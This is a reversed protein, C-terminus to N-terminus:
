IDGENQRHFWNLVRRFMNRPQEMIECLVVTINDRGGKKLARDVLIEVTKVVPIDRSLIDAIEGDSLMDTWITEDWFYVGGDSNDKIKIGEIPKGSETKASLDYDYFINYFAPYYNVKSYPDETKEFIIKGDSYVLDGGWITAGTYAYKDFIKINVYEGNIEINGGWLEYSDGAYIKITDGNHFPVNVAENKSLPYMTENVKINLSKWTGFAVDEMDTYVWAEDDVLVPLIMEDSEEQIATETSENAFILNGGSAFITVAAMAFATLRLAARDKKM